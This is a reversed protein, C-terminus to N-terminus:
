LILMVIWTLIALPVAIEGLFLGAICCKWFAVDVPVGKLYSAWHEIVYEVCFGGVFINFTMFLLVCVFWMLAATIGKM